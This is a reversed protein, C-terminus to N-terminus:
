PILGERRLEDLYIDYLRDARPIMRAYFGDDGTKNGGILLIAARRPDFAYFIRLPHGGSQVRLERMQGHRSGAVGSSYPFPLQPGRQELVAVIAAIDDQAGAALPTGGRASNTPTSSWGLCSIGDISYLCSADFKNGPILM